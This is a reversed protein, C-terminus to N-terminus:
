KKSLTEIIRAKVGTPLEKRESVISHIRQSVQDLFASQKEYCQCGECLRKHLFLQFNEYSSIGTAERKDILAAARRCPVFPLLHMNM